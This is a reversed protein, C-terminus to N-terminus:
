RGHIEQHHGQPGGSRVFRGHIPDRRAFQDWPYAAPSLVLGHEEILPFRWSWFESM